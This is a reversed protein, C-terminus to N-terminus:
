DSTDPVQFLTAHLSNSEKEKNVYVTVLASRDIGSPREYSEHAISYRVGAALVGSPFMSRPWRTTEDQDDESRSFDIEETVIEGGALFLIRGIRYGTYGFEGFYEMAELHSIGQTHIIESTQHSM